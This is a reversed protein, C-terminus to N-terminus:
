SDELPDRPRRAPESRRYSKPRPPEWDRDAHHRYRDHALTLRGNADQSVREGCVGCPPLLGVFIACQEAFDQPDTRTHHLWWAWRSDRRLAPPTFDTM